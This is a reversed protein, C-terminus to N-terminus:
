ILGVIKQKLISLPIFGTMFTTLSQIGVGQKIEALFAILPALSWLLFTVRNPKVKGKITEILYGLAGMAAIITGLIVFKENLM